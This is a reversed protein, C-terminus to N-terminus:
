KAILKEWNITSFWPHNKINQINALRIEPNKAFLLGLLSRINKSWNNSM